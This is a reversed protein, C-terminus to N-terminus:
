VKSTYFEEQIKSMINKKCMPMGRMGKFTLFKFLIFNHNFFCKEKTKYSIKFEKIERKGDNM